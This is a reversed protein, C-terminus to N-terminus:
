PNESRIGPFFRKIVYGGDRLEDDEGFTYEEFFDNLIAALYKLREEVGGDPYERKLFTYIDERQSQLKRHLREVNGPSLDPTELSM